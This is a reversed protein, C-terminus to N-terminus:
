KDKLRQAKRANIAAREEARERDRVEKAAAAAERKQEKIEHRLARAENSYRDGVVSDLKRIIKRATTGAEPPPPTSPTAAGEPFRKLVKDRDLPQLGTAEFAKLINDKTFSQLWAPWFLSFFSGKKVPLLGRSRQTQRTLQQSYATSLPKFLVVDAPQLTHTSHPPFIAVLIKHQHCYTLFSRSIHSGHGDIILLRWKRRASAKTEEDFVQQLWGLGADDNSWGSPTVIKGIMFGKEDMNYTHEPEIGKESIKLKYSDAAHRESAM